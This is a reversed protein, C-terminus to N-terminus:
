VCAFQKRAKAARDLVQASAAPYKGKIAQLTICGNTKSDKDGIQLLSLGLKLMADPARTTKPYTKLVQTFGKAADRYSKKVFDIDSAFYQAPGALEHKPNTSVFSRFAGQAQDYQQNTLLNLASKYQEEPPIASVHSPSSAADAPIQGLVGSPPAPTKPGVPPRQEGKLVMPAPGGAGYPNLTGTQAALGAPVGGELAGIRYQTDKRFLDYQEQMQKVLFSLQEVEGTLRRLSEELDNYRGAGGAPAPGTADYNSQPPGGKNVQYQLDRLEQELRQIRDATAAPDSYYQALAPLPTLGCLLVIVAAVKAAVTRRLRQQGVMSGERWECKM